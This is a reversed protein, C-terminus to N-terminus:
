QPSGHQGFCQRRLDPDLHRIVRIDFLVSLYRGSNRITEARNFIAHKQRRKRRHDRYAPSGAPLTASDHLGIDPYRAGYASPPPPAGGQGWTTPARPSGGDVRASMASESHSRSPRVSHPPPNRHCRSRHTLTWQPEDTTSWGDVRGVSRGVRTDLVRRSAAAYRARRRAVRHAPAACLLATNRQQRAHDRRDPATLAPTDSRELSTPTVQDGCIVPVISSPRMRSPWGSTSAYGPTPQLWLSASCAARGPRRNSLTNKENTSFSGLLTVVMSTNANM